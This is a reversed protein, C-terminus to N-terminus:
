HSHQCASVGGQSYTSLIGPGLSYTAAARPGILRLDNLKTRKNDGIKTVCFVFLNKTLAFM